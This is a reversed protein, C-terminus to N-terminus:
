NEPSNFRVYYYPADAEQRARRAKAKQKAAKKLEPPTKGGSIAVAQLIAKKKGSKGPYCKGSNGWKWGSKGNTQCQTLPM